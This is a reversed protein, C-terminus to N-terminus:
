IASETNELVAYKRRKGTNTKGSTMRSVAGSSAQVVPDVVANLFGTYDPCNCFAKDDNTISYDAEVNIWAEDTAESFYTIKKGGM